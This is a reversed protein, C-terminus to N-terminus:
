PVDNTILVLSFYHPNEPAEDINDYITEGELGMRTAFLARNKTGTLEVTHRIAEFNRYAKLIVANEHHALKEELSTQDCVGSLVVLSEGSEALCRGSKAAAAQFSTIGPITETTLDPATQALTRRLYGFTSYLSPDGLTLFVGTKGTRLEDAVLTANAEWAARLATADRTMPFPLHQVPTGEKLHPRAIDLATSYDNKTSSAAFVVDSQGLIRVAKLTLLEPDGPGVGVGYLKGSTNM